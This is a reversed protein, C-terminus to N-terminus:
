TDRDAVRRPRELQLGTQASDGQAACPFPGLHNLEIRGTAGLRYRTAGCVPCRERELSARPEDDTPLKMTGARPVGAARLIGRATGLRDPLDPGLM